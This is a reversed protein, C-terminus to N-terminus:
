YAAQPIPTAPGLGETSLLPSQAPPMASVHSWAQWRGRPSRKKELVTGTTHFHQSWLSPEAQVPPLPTPCCGQLTTQRWFWFACLTTLGDVNRMCSQTRVRGHLANGSPSSSVGRGRRVRECICVCVCREDKAMGKPRFHLEARISKEEWEQGSIKRSCM